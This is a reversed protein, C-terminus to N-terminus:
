KLELIVSMRTYIFIFLVVRFRSSLFQLCFDFYCSLRGDCVDCRLKGNLQYEYVNVFVCTCIYIYININGNMLCKVVIYM